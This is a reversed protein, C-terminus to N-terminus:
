RTMRQDICGQSYVAGIRANSGQMTGDHPSGIRLFGSIESHAIALLFQFVHRVPWGIL